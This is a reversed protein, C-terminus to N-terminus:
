NVRREGVFIRTHYIEGLIADAAPPARKGDDFAGVPGGAEFHQRASPHHLSCEGPEASAAPEGLVKFCGDGACDGPDEDSVDTSERSAECSSSILHM